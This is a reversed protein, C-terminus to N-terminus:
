LFYKICMYKLVNDQYKRNFFHSIKGIDEKVFSGNLYSVPRKHM